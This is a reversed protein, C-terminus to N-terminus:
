WLSTESTKRSIKNTMVVLFCNVVSNFLGVAASYSYNAEIIGKRYVFTSIVDATNYIAPTYLLMIKEYGVNMVRGMRLILMIIITPMLGPLTIHIMQQIRNAGDVRAAEYQEQSIGTLAALYIISDWGTEQWIASGVYITRFYEEYLLFNKAEAGFLGAISNFLGRESCFDKLLGCIVIISIFHPIYTVTQVTKKFWKGRIENMLLALLIPAPFTFIITLISIALTNKLTRFFFVSGFFQKFYKLGAWPSGLIGDVVNYDKFAILLGYMPAYHYVAYYLLPPLAMLYVLWHRKWDAAVQQRLPQRGSRVANKRNM